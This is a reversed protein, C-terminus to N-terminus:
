NQKLWIGVMQEESRTIGHERLLRAAEKKTLIKKKEIAEVDARFDRFEEELIDEIEQLNKVIIM